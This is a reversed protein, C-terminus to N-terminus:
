RGDFINQQDAFLDEYYAFVLPLGGTHIFVVRSDKEIKGSKVYQILGAM